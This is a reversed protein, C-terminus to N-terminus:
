FGSNDLIQNAMQDCFENQPHGAHGKVWVLKVRPLQTLLEDLRQWLALNLPASRDAKKWGKRKWGAVWKTAGDVVYKSDSFLYIDVQALVKDKSQKQYLEILLEIGRIAATLEMINNTTDISLSSEKLIVAGQGDQGIVGYSGPGPNGRCAGDSFLAVAQPNDILQQPLPLNQEDLPSSPHDEITETTDLKQVRNQLLQCANQAEQDQDLQQFIQELVKIYATQQQKNM